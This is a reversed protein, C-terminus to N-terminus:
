FSEELYTVIDKAVKEYSCKEILKQKLARGRDKAEGRHEYAYRMKGALDKMDPSAWYQDMTYWSNVGMKTVPKLTHNYILGTDNDIYTSQEGFSNTIVPNEFLGAEIMGLGLGEGRSTSVYCDCGKHLSLMQEKSLLQRIVSVPAIDQKSCYSQINSIINQIKEHEAVSYNNGYTKLLLVVNDKSSFEAWYAEILDIFNKRESWQSIAYFIYTDETLDKGTVPHKFSPKVSINYDNFDIPYDFTKLRVKSLPSLSPNTFSLEDFSKRFVKENFVGPLWIERFYSCFSAWKFHLKDTEWLTMLIKRVGEAEEAMQQLALPPTLWSIVVNYEIDKNVHSELIRGKEGLDPHIGEITIPRNTKRVNDVGLTVPIGQNILCLIYSRCWEAYGSADFVPGICKIGKLNKLEM